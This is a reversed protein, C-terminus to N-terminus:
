ADNLYPAFVQQLSVRKAAFEDSLEQVAAENVPDAIGTQVVASQTGLNNLHRQLRWAMSVLTKTEAEVSPMELPGRQEMQWRFSEIESVLDRTGKPVNMLYMTYYRGCFACFEVMSRFVELRQPRRSERTAAIRTRTAEVSQRRAYVASPCGVLLAGLAIVDARLLDQTLFDV